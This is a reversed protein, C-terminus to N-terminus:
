KAKRVWVLVLLGDDRIELFSGSLKVWEGEEFYKLDSERKDLLIMKYANGGPTTKVATAVRYFGGQIEDSPVLKMVHGIEGQGYVREGLHQEKFAELDSPNTKKFNDVLKEVGIAECFSHAFIVTSFLFVVLIARAMYKM